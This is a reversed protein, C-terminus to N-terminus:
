STRYVATLSITQGSEPVFSLFRSKNGDSWHDFYYNSYDAVTVAYSQGSGAKVTFSVPSFGEKFLNTGQWLTTYYGYIENGNSDVTKINFTATGSQPPPPPPPSQENRYVASFTLQSSAATFSRDRNTSGNDAWHDFFYSGYDQVQVTYTQGSTTSFTAPTFGTDIAGGNQFLVTYYGYIPNGSIDKSNVTLHSTTSPPPPGAEQEYWEVAYSVDNGGFTYWLVSQSHPPGSGVYNWTFSFNQTSDYNPGVDNVCHGNGFGFTNESYWTTGIDKNGNSSQNATHLTMSLSYGSHTEARFTIGPHGFTTSPHSLPNFIQTGNSISMQAIASDYRNPCTGPADGMGFVQSTLIGTSSLLLLIMSARIAASGRPKNGGKDTDIGTPM